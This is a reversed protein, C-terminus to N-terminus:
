WPRGAWSLSRGGDVGVNRVWRGDHIERLAALVQTRVNRDASLLSTVDKIALIGRAGLQRLLGGTADKARNQGSSASLLAGESAITSIIIAGAGELPQVTETKANGPASVVLLWPPDGSLREAAAVSLVIDLVDLDYEPGLWKRFTAHVEALTARGPWAPAADMRAWLEAATGGAALWDSVDGHDRLDPLALWRCALGVAGLSHGATTMHKIGPEDHDPLVIVTEPGCAKLQDAYEPRWKGAGMPSTTAALGLAQLADVDKEGEVLVVIRPRTALLVDLGYLVLRVGHLDWIWGDAGNPRRQRFDKPEFRVTQSLVTGTEDKYDYTSVIRASAEGGTRRTSGGSGNRRASPRPAVFLDAMSLGLAQVINRRGVAPMVGSCCAATTAPVSPCRNAIITTARAVPSMARAPRM